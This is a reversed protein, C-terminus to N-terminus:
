VKGKHHRMEKMDVVLGRNMEDKSDYIANFCEVLPAFKM